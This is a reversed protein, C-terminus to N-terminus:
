RKKRPAAAGEKLLEEIKQRLNQEEQDAAFFKDDGEYQARIMGQRDLFALIPMHPILMPPHQLYDLVAKQDTNFGVPFPPHFDRIFGPVALAAGTEVASALVEFGRPGFEQQHKGLLGITIQCHPCTTLIFALVVVKGKYQNLLIQKGNTLSIAFEPSKRPLDAASVAPPVLGLLAVAAALSRRKPMM